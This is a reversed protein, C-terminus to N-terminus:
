LPTSYQLPLCSGLALVIALTHVQAQQGHMGDSSLDGLLRKLLLVKM